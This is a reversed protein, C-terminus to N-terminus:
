AHDEPVCYVVKEANAKDFDGNEMVRQDPRLRSDTPAMGEEMENLSCVFETFGYMLESGPRHLSLFSLPPPFPPHLLPPLLYLSPSFSLLFLFLSLSSSFLFSLPTDFQLDTQDISLKNEIFRM